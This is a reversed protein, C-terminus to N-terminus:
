KAFRLAMTKTETGTLTIRTARARWARLQDVDTEQGPEILPVAIVYYEAAPLGRVESTGDDQSDVAAVYRTGTAWQREDTSFAVLSYNNIPANRDDTVTAAVASMKRTIAIEVGTVNESGFDYGSDTVDVGAIRVSKVFWSPQVPLFSSLGMGTFSIPGPAHLRFVQRGVLNPMEFTLDPRIPVDNGFLLFRAAGPGIAPARVFMSGPTTLADGQSGDDVILRGSATVGAATPITLQTLDTNSVAVPFTGFGGPPPSGPGARGRGPGLNTRAKLIYEGPAVGTFSFTGDPAINTGRSSLNSGAPTLNVSGGTAPRGASDTVTGSVNVVRVRLLNLTAHAERGEEVVLPSADAPTATGPYYTPVYALTQGSTGNRSLLPQTSLYYIGAPLGHIRFQGQDDAIGGQVFSSMESPFAPVMQREGDVFRPRMAVAMVGSAPEGLEDFIRGAIVGGAPLHVDINALTQAAKLTLVKGTGFPRRQGYPTSVFGAKIVDVMYDGPILDDVQWRGEADTPVGRPVRSGTGRGPGAGVPTISVQANRVPKVPDGATVRGSVRANTQAGPPAQDRVAQPAASPRAGVVLALLLLCTGAIARSRM